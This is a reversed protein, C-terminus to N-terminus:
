NKEFVYVSTMDGGHTSALKYGMAGIANIQKNAKMEVEETNNFTLIKPLDIKEVTGNPYTTTIAGPAVRVVVLGKAQDDQVSNFATVGIFISLLATIIILKNKM